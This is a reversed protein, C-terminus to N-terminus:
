NVPNKHEKLGFYCSVSPARSPASQLESFSASDRVTHAPPQLAEPHGALGRAGDGQTRAPDPPIVEGPQM